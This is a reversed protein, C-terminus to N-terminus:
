NYKFDDNKVIDKPGCLLIEQTGDESSQFLSARTHNKNKNKDKRCPWFSIKSVLIIEFKGCIMHFTHSDYSCIKFDSIFTNKNFYIVFHIQTWRFVMSQMALYMLNLSIFLLCKRSASELLSARQSSFCSDKKYQRSIWFRAFNLLSVFHAVFKLNEFDCVNESILKGFEHM